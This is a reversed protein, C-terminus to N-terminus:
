GYILEKLTNSHDEDADLDAFDPDGDRLRNIEERAERLESDLANVQEALADRSRRIFDINQRDAERDKDVISLASKLKINMDRAREIGMPDNAHSFESGERASRFGMHWCLLDSLGNSITEAEKASMTITVTEEDQM